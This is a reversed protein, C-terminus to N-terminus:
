GRRIKPGTPSVRYMAEGAARAYMVADAIQGRNYARLAYLRWREPAELRHLVEIERRKHRAIAIGYARRDNERCHWEYWKQSDVPYPNQMSM